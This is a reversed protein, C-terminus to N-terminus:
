IGTFDAGEGDPSWSPWGATMTRFQTLQRRPAATPWLPNMVAVTDTAGVFPLLTTTALPPWTNTEVLASAAVTPAGLPTVNAGV